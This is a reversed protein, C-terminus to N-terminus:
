TRQVASGIFLVEGGRMCHNSMGSLPRPNIIINYFNAKSIPIKISVTRYPGDEWNVTTDKERLLEKYDKDWYNKLFEGPIM